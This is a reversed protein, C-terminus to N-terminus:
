VGIEVGKAANLVAFVMDIVGERMSEPNPLAAFLNLPLPSVLFFINERKL